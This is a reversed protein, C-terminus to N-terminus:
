FLKDAVKAQSQGRFGTQRTYMDFYRGRARYLAEHVGREVIMGKEMVLVEDARCITSLRHAIVLTTRGRMLHALAEQILLESESDLSATAEDLLLIRPDALIARAISVRQRQGGSLRVGREGVITDYGHELGEAFEDLHAMRYARSLAKDSANPLAFAVNERISGDFLFSDQLVVGLHPRYSDVRVTSLDIGDVLIRGSSPTYFACALSIITSKGAGSPGVLATVTGPMSRFSVGFLAPRDPDYAFEVNEFQLRGDVQRLRVKRRPDADEPHENMLERCRDVGASAETILAGVGIVQFMPNVLLALFITYTLFEGVTLSGALIQHTGILIVLAGVAGLLLTSVLNLLSIANLSALANALLRRAGSAFVAAEGDEANYAKIIRVGGLSETLRGTVQAYIQTRERFMPRITGVALKLVGGFAILAVVAIVTLRPSITVLVILSIVATTLGGLLEVLGTGVLARIRDIDTMIRSVLVGAKTRDYYAVTLRGVHAQVTQRLEAILREAANSVLRTLAFSSVAQVTTAGLIAIVLPLLLRTERKGVIDDILYKMSAPLVVGSVRSILLLSLGGALIARRERMLAWVGTLAATLQEPRTPSSEGM